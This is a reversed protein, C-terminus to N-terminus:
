ELQNMMLNLQIVPNQQQHNTDLDVLDGTSEDDCKRVIKSWTLDMGENNGRM